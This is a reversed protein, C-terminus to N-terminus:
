KRLGTRFGGIDKERFFKKFLALEKPTLLTLEVELRKDPGRQIECPVLFPQAVIAREVQFDPKKWWRPTTRLHKNKKVVQRQEARLSRVWKRVNEDCDELYLMARGANPTKRDPVKYFIM